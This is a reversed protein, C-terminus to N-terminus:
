CEDQIPRLELPGECAAANVQTDVRQVDPSSFDVDLDYEDDHWASLLCQVM